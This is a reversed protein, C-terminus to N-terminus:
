RARTHPHQTRQSTVCLSHTHPMRPAFGRLTVEPDKPAKKHKASWVRYCRDTDILNHAAKGEGGLRAQKDLWEVTIYVM